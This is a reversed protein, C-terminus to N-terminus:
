LCAHMAEILEKKHTKILKKFAEAIPHGDYEKREFTVPIIKDNIKSYMTTIGAEALTPFFLEPSECLSRKLNNYHKETLAKNNYHKENRAKPNKKM